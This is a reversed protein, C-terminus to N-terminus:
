LLMDKIFLLFVRTHVNIQSSHVVNSLSTCVDIKLSYSWRIQSRCSCCKKYFFLVELFFLFFIKKVKKFAVMLPSNFNIPSSVSGTSGSMSGIFSSIQSFYFKLRCQFNYDQQGSYFYVFFLFPISSNICFFTCFQLFFVFFTQFHFYTNGCCWFEDSFKVCSLEGSEYSEM